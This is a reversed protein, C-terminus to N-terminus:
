LCCDTCSHFLLPNYKRSLNFKERKVEFKIEMLLGM